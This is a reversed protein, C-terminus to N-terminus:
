EGPLIIRKKATVPKVLQPTAKATRYQAWAEELSAKVKDNFKIEYEIAQDRTITGFEVLAEILVSIKAQEVNMGLAPLHQKLEMYSLNNELTQQDRYVERETQDAHFILNDCLVYTDGRPVAGREHPDTSECTPCKM